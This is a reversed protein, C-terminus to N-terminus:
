EHPDAVGAARGDDVVTTTAAATRACHGPDDDFLCAFAAPVSRCEDDAAVEITRFIERVKEPRARLRELDAALSLMADNRRQRETQWQQEVAHKWDQVVAAARVREHARGLQYTGGFVLALGSAIVLGTWWGSAM